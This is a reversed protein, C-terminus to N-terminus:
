SKDEQSPTKKAAPKPDLVAVAIHVCDDITADHLRERWFRDLPVGEADTSVAVTSGAAYGPLDKNVKINISNM